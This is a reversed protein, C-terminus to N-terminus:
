CCPASVTLMMELAQRGLTVVGSDDTPGTM